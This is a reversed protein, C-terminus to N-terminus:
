RTCLRQPNSLSRGTEAFGLHNDTGIRLGLGLRRCIRRCCTSNDSFPNSMEDAPTGQNRISVLLVNACRFLQAGSDIVSVVRGLGTFDVTPGSISRLAIQSQVLAFFRNSPTRCRIRLSYLAVALLHQWLPFALRVSSQGPDFVESASANFRGGSAESIQRLLSENVPGLRLEDPYGVVFGRSQRLTTAGNKSQNIELNYFGPKSADLEAEYRGPASQQMSISQPVLSPDVITLKTEAANVFRGTEDVADIIVRARDAQRQVEVFVNKADNSRMAHRTVQAWFPGFQPWELWEAAWQSKADSTFAVTMGLGYRWWALLPDGSETAM